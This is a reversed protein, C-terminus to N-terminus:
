LYTFVILPYVHMITHRDSVPDLDKFFFTKLVNIMSKNSNQIIDGILFHSLWKKKKFKPFFFM